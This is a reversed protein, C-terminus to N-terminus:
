TTTDVIAGVNLTVSDGAAPIVTLSAVVTFEVGPELADLDLFNGQVFQGFLAAPVPQNSINQNASGALVADITVAGNSTAGIRTVEAVLKRISIPKQPTVKVQQTSPSGNTWNIAPLGLFKRRAGFRQVGPAIQQRLAKIGPMRAGMEDAGMQEDYGLAGLVNAFDQATAPM